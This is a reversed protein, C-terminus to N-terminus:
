MKGRKRIKKKKQIKPNVTKDKNACIRVFWDLLTVCEMEWYKRISRMKECKGIRGDRVRTRVIM